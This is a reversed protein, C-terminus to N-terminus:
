KKVIKCRSDDEFYILGEKKYINRAGPSLPISSDFSVLEDYKLELSSFNNIQLEFQAKPTLKKDISVTFSQMDIADRMKELNNIYNQTIYEVREMPIDNRIVLIMRTSYTELYSYTNGSKHFKNLDVVRPVVCQFYKRMKQNFTEQINETQLTDMVSQAYIAQKNISPPEPDGLQTNTGQQNPIINALNNRSDIGLRKQIHIFRIKMALSLDLLQKNKPHVVLFIGDYKSIKFKDLLDEMSEDVTINMESLKIGYASCLKIFYYYSDALIGISKNKIDLFEIVNSFNNVILYLDQHFGVGIASFNIPPYLRDINEPISTDYNQVGLNDVIYRTLYKCDRKLYRALLEENIFAIDIDNNIFKYITDLGTLLQEANIPYIHHRFYNGIMQDYSGNSYFGYRIVPLSVKNNSIIAKGPERLYWNTDLTATNELSQKQSLSSYQTFHETFTDERINLDKSNEFTNQSFYLKIYPILFDNFLYLIIMGALIFTIIYTTNM